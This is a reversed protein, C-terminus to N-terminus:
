SQTARKILDNTWGVAEEVTRLVPLGEATNQYLEPWSPWIQHIM